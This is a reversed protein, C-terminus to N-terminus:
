RFTVILPRARNERDAGGRGPSTLPVRYDGRYLGAFIALRDPGYDRPISVFFRDLVLDGPRLLHLFRSLDNELPALRGFPDGGVGLLRDVSLATTLSQRYATLIFSRHNTQCIRRDSERM